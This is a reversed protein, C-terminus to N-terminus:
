KRLWFCEPQYLNPSPEHHRVRPRGAEKMEADQERIKESPFEIRLSCPGDHQFGELLPMAEHRGCRECTVEVIVQNNANRSITWKSM